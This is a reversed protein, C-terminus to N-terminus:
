GYARIRPFLRRCLLSEAEVDRGATIRRALAADETSDDHAAGM